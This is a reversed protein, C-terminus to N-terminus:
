KPSVVWYVIITSICPPLSAEESMPLEKAKMIDSTTAQPESPRVIEKEFPTIRFFLGVYILSSTLVVSACDRFDRLYFVHVNLIPQTNCQAWTKPSQKVSM